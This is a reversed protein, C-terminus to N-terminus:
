QIESHCKWLGYISSQDNGEKWIIRKEHGVLGEEVKPDDENKQKLKWMLTFMCDEYKQLKNSKVCLRGTGEM